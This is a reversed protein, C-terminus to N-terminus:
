ITYDTLEKLVADTIYNKVGEAGMVAKINQLLEVDIQLTLLVLVKRNETDVKTQKKKVKMIIRKIISLIGM